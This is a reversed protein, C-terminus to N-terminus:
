GKAEIVLWKGQRYADLQSVENFSLILTDFVSKMEDTRGFIKLKKVGTDVVMRLAETLAFTTIKILELLEDKHVEEKYDMILSPEMFINLFKFSPDRSRRADTMEVVARPVPSGEATLAWLAPDAGGEEASKECWGVIREVSGEVYVVEDGLSDLQKMWEAKLEGVVEQSLPKLEFAM